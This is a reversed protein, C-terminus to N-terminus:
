HTSPTMRLVWEVEAQKEQCYQVEDRPTVNLDLNIFAASARVYSALECARYRQEGFGGRGEGEKSEIRNEGHQRGDMRGDM